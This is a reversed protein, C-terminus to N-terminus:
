GNGCERFRVGLGGAGYAEVETTFNAFGRTLLDKTSGVLIREGSPSTDWKVYGERTIREEYKEPLFWEKFLHHWANESFRKGELLAQESIEGIRNWYYNNADNSRKKQFERVVVELPREADIPLNSILSIATTVQLKDRLVIQRTQFKDRM